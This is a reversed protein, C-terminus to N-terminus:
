SSAQEQNTATTTGNIIQEAAAPTWAGADLAMEADIRELPSMKDLKAFLTERLIAGQKAYYEFVSWSFAPLPDPLFLRNKAVWSEAKRTRCETRGTHSVKIQIKDDKGDTWTSSESRVFLVVDSADTIFNAAHKHLKLGWQKYDPMAPDPVNEPVSHGVLVVFMGRQRKLDQCAAEFERWEDLAVKYGDGFSYPKEPGRISKMNDRKCCFDWCMPEIADVTDVVLVKHDHKDDRLMGMRRMVKGWNWLREEESAGKRAAKIRKVSRPLSALEEDEVALVAAGPALAGFMTKGLGQGGHVTIICPPFDGREDGECTLEDLTPAPAAAPKPALASPTGNKVAPPPKIMQVPAAATSM